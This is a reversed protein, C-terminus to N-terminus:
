ITPAPVTPGKAWSLFLRFGRALAYLFVGGFVIGFPILCILLLIWWRSPTMSSFLAMQEQSQQKQLLQQLTQGNGLVVLNGSLDSTPDFPVCKYDETPLGCQQQDTSVKGSLIPPKTFYQLLNTFRETAPSLSAQALFGDTSTQTPVKDGEDDVQYQIVTAYNGLLGKEL